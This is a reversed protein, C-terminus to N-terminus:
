GVVWMNAGDSALEVKGKATNIVYTDVGDIKETGQTGITINKTAAGGGSDKIVLRKYALILATPITIACAGTATYNILLTHDGELVTYTSANVITPVVMNNLTNVGMEPALPESRSLEVYFVENEVAGTVTLTTGVLTYGTSPVEYPELNEDYGTVKDITGEYPLTIQSSANTQHSGEYYPEFYVTGNQKAQLIGSTLLPTIIPTALEFRLMGAGSTSDTGIVGIQTGGATLEVAFKGGTKATPYNTVNVAVGSAVSVPTSIKKTLMHEGNVVSVTDSVAQVSRVEENDAIYLTSDTYPEYPTATSGLNLQIDIFETLHTSKFYGVGVQIYCIGDPIIYTRDYKTSNGFSQSGVDSFSVYSKNKDYYWLGSVRSEANITSFSLTIQQGQVVPLLKEYRFVIVSSTNISVTRFGTDTKVFTGTVGTALAGLYNRLTYDSIDTGDFLNRGVSRVRAPMSISKTGDFYSFIKACDSATPENGAGYVGTLYIVAINKTAGTDNTVTIGSGTGTLITGHLVDFYKHNLVSAFTVTGLNAIDAGNVINTATRGEVTPNARGTARADFAVQGIGSFDLTAGNGQQLTQKVSALDQWQRALTLETTDIRAEIPTIADKVTKAVSGVVTDAGELTDLRDEHTKLSGETYGVGKIADVESQNAKLAITDLQAYLADIETTRGALAEVEALKAYLAAVETLKAAVASVDAKSANVSTIDDTILALASIAAQIGALTTIDAGKAAVTDINAKNANVANINAANANVAVVADDILAVATVAPAILSVATVESDISAVKTIDAAKPALIDINAKEGAVLNINSENDSVAVVAEDILAVASVADDIAAVKSVDSDITAVKTVSEGILVVAEISDLGGAVAEVVGIKEAVAGVASISEAVTNINALDAAVAIFGADALIADRATESADRAAGAELAAAVARDLFDETDPTNTPVPKRAVTIVSPLTQYVARGESDVCQLWIALNGAKGTIGEKPSYAITLTGAETDPTVTVREDIDGLADARQYGVGWGTLPLDVGDYASPLVFSWREVEYDSTMSQIAAVDMKRGAITITKM